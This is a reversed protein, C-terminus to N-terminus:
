IDDIVVEEEEAAEEEEDEDVFEFGDDEEEAGGGASAFFGKPFPVDLAALLDRMPAAIASDIKAAVQAGRIIVIDGATMSNPRDGRMAGRGGRVNGGIPLKVHEEDGEEVSMLRVELRNGGLQRIVRGLQLAEVELIALDARSKAAALISLFQEVVANNKAAARAAKKGLPRGGASAKKAKMKPANESVTRAPM